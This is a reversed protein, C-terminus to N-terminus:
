AAVPESAPDTAQLTAVFETLDVALGGVLMRRNADYIPFKTVLLTKTEGKPDTVAVTKILPKGSHFVYKDDMAANAIADPSYGRNRMIQLHDGPQVGMSRAKENVYVHMGEEDRLWMAEPCADLFSYLLALDSETQEAHQFPIHPGSHM